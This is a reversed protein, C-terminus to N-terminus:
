KGDFNKLEEVSIGFANAYKELIKSNLKGFIKPKAHRKVYWQWYGVYSALIAWDMKNKEMFYLIPSANGDAVAKRAQETRESILSMSEDLALSKADWGKSNATTYNGSEDTVYLIETINATELNSKDQPVNQKNM